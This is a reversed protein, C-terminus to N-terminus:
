LLGGTNDTGFMDRIKEERNDVMDEILELDNMDPSSMGKAERIGKLYGMAQTGVIRKVVNTVTDGDAQRAVDELVDDSGGAAFEEDGDLTNDIFQELQGREKAEM